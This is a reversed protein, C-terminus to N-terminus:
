HVGVYGRLSRPVAAADIGVSRNSIRQGNWGGGSCQRPDSPICGAPGFITGVLSLTFSLNWILLGSRPLRQVWRPQVIALWAWVGALLSVVTVILPYNGATWRAIVAPASFAFYVLTLILFIGLIASTLGIKHKQRSPEGQWDLQILLWFFLLGLGWGVWSGAATLSYDVSFNLTRLLVSLGVALALGGSVGWGTQALTEGKPKAAILLGFFILASGAGLGSALLRDSTDLYPTVGRAFFLLGFLGWVLLKPVKNRFFLLLVPTFFFLTGLAKEDLSTHMLDLIYISQVLTGAMQIFFLFLIGFAVIFLYNKRM